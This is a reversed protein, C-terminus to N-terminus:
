PQKGAAAASALQCNEVVVQVHSDMNACVGKVVINDERNVNALAAAAEASFHCRVSGISSEPSNLLIEVKDDHNKDISMIKGSLVLNRGGYTKEAAKEDAEYDALIKIATVEISPETSAKSASDSGNNCSSFTIASVLAIALLQFKM